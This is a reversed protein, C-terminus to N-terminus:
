VGQQASRTLPVSILAFAAAASAPFAVHSSATDAEECLSSELTAAAVTLEQRTPGHEASTTTMIHDPKALRQMTHLSYIPTCSDYGTAAILLTPSDDRSRALTVGSNWGTLAAEANVNM